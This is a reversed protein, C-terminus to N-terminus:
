KGLYTKVKNSGMGITKYVIKLILMFALGPTGLNCLILINRLYVFFNYSEELGLNIDSRGKYMLDELIQNEAILLIEQGKSWVIAGIAFSIFISLLKGYNKKFLIVHDYFVFWRFFQIMFVIAIFGHLLHAYPITTYVPYWIIAAIFISILWIIVERFIIKTM